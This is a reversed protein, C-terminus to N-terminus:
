HRVFEGHYTLRAAAAAAVADALKIFEGFRRMRGKVRMRVQWVNRTKDWSVNKFGSKNASNVGTNHKNQLSTAERLNSWWNHHKVTDRHDVENKPWNGTMYFVALRHALYAQGDIRIAVYGNAM